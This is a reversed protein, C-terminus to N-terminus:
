SRPMELPLLPQASTEAATTLTALLQGKVVIRRDVSSLSFGAKELRRVRGGQDFKLGAEHLRNIFWNQFHFEKNRQARM